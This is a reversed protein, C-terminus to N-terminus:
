FKSDDYFNMKVLCLMEDDSKYWEVVPTIMDAREDKMMEHFIDKICGTQNRWNELTVALYDGKEIIYRECNCKEAEGEYKEEAEVKYIIKGKDDMYSVGYYSRNRGDPIMEFLTTFAEKIGDPFTPVERGFVRIDNEIKYTIIDYTNM